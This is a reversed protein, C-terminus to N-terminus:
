SNRGVVASILMDITSNFHSALLNENLQNFFDTIGNAQEFFTDISDKSIGKQQCIAYFKDSIQADPENPEFINNILLESQFHRKVVIDIITSFFLAPNLHKTTIIEELVPLHKDAILRQRSSLLGLEKLKTRYKQLVKSSLNPVKELVEKDSLTKLINSNDQM